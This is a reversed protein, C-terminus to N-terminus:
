GVRSEINDKYFDYFLFLLKNNVENKILKPLLIKEINEPTNNSVIKGDKKSASTHIHLDIKAYKEVIHEM